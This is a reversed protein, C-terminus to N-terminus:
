GTGRPCTRSQALQGKGRERTAARLLAPAQPLKALAKGAGTDLLEAVPQLDGSLGQRPPSKPVNGPPERHGPRQARAVSPKETSLAARGQERALQLRLSCRQQRYGGAAETEWGPKEALQLAM